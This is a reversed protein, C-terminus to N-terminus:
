ILIYLSVRLLTPFTSNVIKTVMTSTYRKLYESVRLVDLSNLDQSRVLSCDGFLRGIRTAIIDSAYFDCLVDMIAKNKTINAIKLLKMGLWDVKSWWRRVNVSANRNTITNKLDKYYTLYESQDPISISSLYKNRCQHPQKGPILRAIKQWNDGYASYLLQLAYLESLTFNDGSQHGKCIFRWRLRCQENTRNGMFRSVNRWNISESRKTGTVRYNVEKRVARRLKEDDGSTWRRNVSRSNMSAAKLYQYLTIGLEQAKEAGSVFSDTDTPDSDIYRQLREVDKATVTDLLKGDETSNLFISCCETSLRSRSSTKGANVADAVRSWLSSIDSCVPPPTSSEPESCPEVPDGMVFERFGEPNNKLLEITGSLDDKCKLIIGSIHLNGYTIYLEYLLRSSPLQLLEVSQRLDEISLHAELGDPGGCIARIIEHRVSKHLERIQDPEWKPVKWDYKRRYLPLSASFNHIVVADNNSAPKRGRDDELQSISDKM